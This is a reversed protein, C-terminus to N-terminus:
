DREWKISHELAELNTYRALGLRPHSFNGSPYRVWGHDRLFGEVAALLKTSMVIETM